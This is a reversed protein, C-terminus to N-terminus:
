GPNKQEASDRECGKKEPFNSGLSDALETIQKSLAQALQLLRRLQSSSATAFM